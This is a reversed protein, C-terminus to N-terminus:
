TVASQTRGLPWAAAGAGSLVALLSLTSRAARIEEFDRWGVGPMLCQHWEGGPSLSVRSLALAAPIVSRGVAGCLAFDRWALHLFSATRFVGM